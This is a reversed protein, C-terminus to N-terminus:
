GVTQYRVHSLDTVYARYNVINRCPLKFAKLFLSSCQQCSVDYGGIVCSSGCVALQVAHQTAIKLQRAVLYPVAHDTLQAFLHAEDSSLQSNTSQEPIALFRKIMADECYLASFKSNVNVDSSM